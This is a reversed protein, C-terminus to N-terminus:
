ESDTVLPHGPVGPRTQWPRPGAPPRYEVGLADLRPLHHEVLRREFDAPDRADAPSWVVEAFAALRPFAAYDLRRPSDLHETWLQAQAGLVRAAAEAPMGAPVPEYRYVDATGRRYGVPIPEDPDDSQRHDLYVYREPCMVVDHGAVAARVGADEGRWSAIVVGPGPDGGDGIEDWGIARRGHGALHEAMQRLFWTHLEAETTLGLEAMRRRAVPSAVWETAPVEDGGIHVFPAPFVEVVEDLVHRFFDLTADSVNLVHESIGWLPWVEVPEATNGLEPYAALVARVHGPMDIEPVVMVQREAAYAVIERLDEQTYFGGHPRGDHVAERHWGVRSGVRWGGVEALRPYRLVQMRWGQDDTLHLHLVNLKHAALLDVFRLVGDKPLFHRAVDLLCGRWAFRPADVVEGCPLEWRRASVPARRFAAPGLLQRLTTAAHGAGEADAATVRVGDATIRLRYGGPGPAGSRDVAFRVTADAGGPPLPLGTASGVTHRFWRAAPEAEGAAAVASREDLALTGGTAAAHVPRPLLSDLATM